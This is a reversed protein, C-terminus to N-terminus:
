ELTVPGSTASLHVYRDVLWPSSGSSTVDYSGTGLYVQADNGSSGLVAFVASHIPDELTGAGFNGPPTPVAYILSSTRTGYVNKMDQIDNASIFSGQGIPQPSSITECCPSCATFACSSYHMMSDYDYGTLLAGAVWATRLDFNHELGSEINNPTGNEGNNVTVFSDRDPRSQEHFFGLTHSLEHALGIQWDYCWQAPSIYNDTPGALMGVNSWCTGDQNNKFILVEQDVGPTSPVFTVKAGTSHWLDMAARVKLRNSLTVDPEFEFYVIGNEWSLPPTGFLQDITLAMDDILVWADNQAGGDGVVQASLPSWSLCAMFLGLAIHQPQGLSRSEFHYLKM